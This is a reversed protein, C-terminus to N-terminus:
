ENVIIRLNKDFTVESGDDLKITIYKSEKNHEYKLGNKECAKEFAKLKNNFINDGWM